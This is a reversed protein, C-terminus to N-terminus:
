REVGRLRYVRTLRAAWYGALRHERVEGEMALAHVVGLGGDDMRFLVGVHRPREKNEVWFVAVDGPAADSAEVRDLQADLEALLHAPRPARGYTREDRLAVGCRAAACVAVGLCDLGEGPLRGQHVFRTRVFSRAAAVIDAATSM